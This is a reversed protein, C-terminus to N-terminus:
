CYLCEQETGLNHRVRHGRSSYCGLSRQGETDRVSQEFEHGSLWYHWKTMEDETEGKEEQVWDKGVDLDKELSDARQMLYGFFQLKLKLVKADTRGIFLEPNIEKLIGKNCVHPPPPSPASLIYPCSLPLGNIDSISYLNWIQVM